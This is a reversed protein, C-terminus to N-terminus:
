NGGLSGLISQADIITAALKATSIRKATAQQRIFEYARPESLGRLEM